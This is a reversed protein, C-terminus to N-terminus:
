VCLNDSHLWRRSNPRERCTRSFISLALVKDRIVYGPPAGEVTAGDFNTAAIAALGGWLDEIASRMAGLVRNAHERPESIDFIPALKACMGLLQLLEAIRQDIDNM